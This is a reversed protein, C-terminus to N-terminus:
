REMECGSHVGGLLNRPTRARFGYPRRFERLAIRVGGAPPRPVLRAAAPPVACWVQVEAAPGRVLDTGALATTPELPDGPALRLPARAARARSLRQRALGHPGGLTRVPPQPTSPVSSLTRGVERLAAVVHGEGPGRGTPTEELSGALRSRPADGRHPTTSAPAARPNPSAWFRGPRLRRGPGPGAQTKEVKAPRSGPGCPGHASPTARPTRCPVGATRRGGDGRPM